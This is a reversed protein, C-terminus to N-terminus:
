VTAWHIEPMCTEFLPLQIVLNYARMPDVPVESKCVPALHDLNHDTMVTM